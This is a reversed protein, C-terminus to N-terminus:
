MFSQPQMKFPVQKYDIFVERKARAIGEWYEVWKEHALEPNSWPKKPQIMLRNKAHAMVTESYRELFWEPLENSSLHPRLIITVILGGTSDATPEDTLKIQYEQILNYKCTDMLAGDYEVKQIRQVSADWGTQLNYTDTGSVIDIADLEEIWSESDICFRRGSERLQKSIVKNPVGPLDEIMYPILDNYQTVLNSM